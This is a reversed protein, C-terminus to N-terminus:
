STPNEKGDAAIHYFKNRKSKILAAFIQQFQKTQRFRELLDKYTRQNNKM